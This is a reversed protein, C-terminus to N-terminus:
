SFPVLPEWPLEPWDVFMTQRRVANTFKNLAVVFTTTARLMPSDVDDRLISNVISCLEPRYTDTVYLTSLSTYLLVVKKELKQLATLPREDPNSKVRDADDKEVKAVLDQLEQWFVDVNAVVAKNASGFARVVTEVADLLQKM